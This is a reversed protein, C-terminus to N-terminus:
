KPTRIYKTLPPASFLVLPLFYKRRPLSFIEEGPHSQLPSVKNQSVPVRIKLIKTVSTFNLSKIINLLWWLIVVTPLGVLKFFGSFSTILSNWLFNSNWLTLIRFLYSVSIVVETIEMEEIETNIRYSEKKRVHDSNAFFITM